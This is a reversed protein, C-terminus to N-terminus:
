VWGNNIEIGAAPLGPHPLYRLHVSVSYNLFRSFASNIHLPRPLQPTIPRKLLEEDGLRLDERGKSHGRDFRKRQIRGDPDLRRNRLVGIGTRQTLVPLHQRNRGFQIQPFPPAQRQREQLARSVDHTKPVEMGLNRLVAKLLLEVCEQAECVVDSYGREQHMFKLAKIRVTAKEIYARSLRDNTM